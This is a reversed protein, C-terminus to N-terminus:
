QVGVHVAEPVRQHWDTRQQFQHAAALITAEDLYNGILQLGVPLSSSFGAPISMAPLGALNGAITYIDQLYMAIQDGIKEGLSFAPQPATPGLLIDVDKFAAQFDDKILRRIQQAQRYYADYYGTSLTFAGVMIRRKM